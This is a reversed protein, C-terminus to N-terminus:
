DFIKAMKSFTSKLLGCERCWDGIEGTKGAYNKIGSQGLSLGWLEFYLPHRMSASEIEALRWHGLRGMGEGADADEDEIEIAREDIGLEIESEGDVGREGVEAAGFEIMLRNVTEHAVASRDQDAASEAIAGGIGFTVGREGKKEGVIAGVHEVVSARVGADDFTESEERSM